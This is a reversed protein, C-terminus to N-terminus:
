RQGARPVYVVETYQGSAVAADVLQAEGETSLRGNFVNNETLHVWNGNSALKGHYGTSPTALTQLM